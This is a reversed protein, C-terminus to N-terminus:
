YTLIHIYMHIYEIYNFHIIINEWAITKYKECTLPVFSQLGLHLVSLISICIISLIQFHM